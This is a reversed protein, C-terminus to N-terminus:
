LVKICDSLYFKMDGSSGVHFINFGKNFFDEWSDLSLGSFKRGYLENQKANNFSVQIDALSPLRGDATLNILHNLKTM